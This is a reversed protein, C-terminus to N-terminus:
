FAYQASLVIGSGVGLDSFGKTEDGTDVYAAVLTLKENVFWAVHGNWYDSNHIGDGANVGQKYEVGVAVNKAPLIDINGFFVTDYDNHGLVGNVVEDSYLVGGSLLIPIPTQTILKTAVLYADFGSDDLGLDKTVSADTTKWVGGIALGPVWVADGFNEDLIKIKAGLNHTNISNDVGNANIFGYGYSLELRKAISFAVSAAYWDIDADDLNVYWTGLQPKSLWEGLGGKEGEAYTGATYALPNFAIGGNGQLGNLPVGAEATLALLGATFVFNTVTGTLKNM